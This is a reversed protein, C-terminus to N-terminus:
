QFKLQVTGQDGNCATSLSEFLYTGTLSSADASLTAPIQTILFGNPGFVNLSASEGSVTGTITATTLYPCFAANSNTATMTGSLTATSSGSNPGQTLSGSVPTTTGGTVTSSFTGTFSGNVAPVLIASWNGTSAYPTTCAGSLTSFVGSGGSSNSPASGTLNLDQGSESINITVNQGSVSGSVLGVGSCGEGLILSGSLSSNSQILFGTYQFSQILGHPQLTIQWNGTLEGTTASNGSGGGCALGVSLCALLAAVRLKFGLQASSNTM